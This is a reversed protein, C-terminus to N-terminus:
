LVTPPGRLRRWNAWRVEISIKNKLEITDPLSRDPLLQRLIPSAALVEAAYNVIIAAQEQDPALCLVIGKEGPVLVDRYTCCGALYAALVSM